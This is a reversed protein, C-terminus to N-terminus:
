TIRFMPSLQPLFGSKRIRSRQSHRNGLFVLAIKAGCRPMAGAKDGAVIILGTQPSDDHAFPALLKDVDTPPL